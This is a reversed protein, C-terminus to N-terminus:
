IDKRTETTKEKNHKHKNNNISKLSMQKSTWIGKQEFFKIFCVRVKRATGGEGSHERQFHQSRGLLRDGMHSRFTVQPWFFCPASLICLQSIYGLSDNKCNMSLVQLLTMFPLIRRCYNCTGYGECHARIASTALFTPFSPFSRSGKWFAKEEGPLLLHLEYSVSVAAMLLSFIVMMWDNM